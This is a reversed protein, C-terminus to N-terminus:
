PFILMRLNSLSVRLIWFLIEVTDRDRPIRVSVPNPEPATRSKKHYRAPHYNTTASKSRARVDGGTTGANDSM